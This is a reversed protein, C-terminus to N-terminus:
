VLALPKEKQACLFVEIPDDFVAHANDDFKDEWLLYSLLLEEANANDNVPQSTQTLKKSNDSPNSNVLTLM